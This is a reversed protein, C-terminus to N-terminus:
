TLAVHPPEEDASPQELEDVTATPNSRWAEELANIQSMTLHRARAIEQMM